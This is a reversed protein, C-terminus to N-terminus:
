PPLALLPDGLDRFPAEVIELPLEPDARRWERRM